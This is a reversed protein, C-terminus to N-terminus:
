PLNVQRLIGGAQCGALLSGGLPMLVQSPEKATAQPNGPSYGVPSRPARRNKEKTGETQVLVTDKASRTVRFDTGDGLDDSFTNVGGCSWHGRVTSRQLGPVPWEM